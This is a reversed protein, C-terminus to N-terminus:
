MLYGLAYLVLGLAIAIIAHIKLLIPSGEYLKVLKVMSNPVILLVAGKLLSLWGMLTVILSLRIRWVNYYQIIILGFALASIGGLYRMAPNKIFESMINQYTKPNFLMGLGVVLFIPGLIKAIIVANGMSEM